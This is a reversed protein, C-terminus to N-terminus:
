LIPSCRHWLVLYRHCSEVQVLARPLQAAIWISGSGTAAAMPMFGTSDGATVSPLDSPPVLPDGTAPDIQVIRGSRGDSAGMTAWVSTSTGTVASGNWSHSSNDMWDIALSRSTVNGEAPHFRALWIRHGGGDPHDPSGIFNQGLMWLSGAAFTARWPCQKHFTTGNAGPDGNADLGVVVTTWGDSRCGVVWAGAGTPVILSPTWAGDAFPAQSVTSGEFPQRLTFIGSRGAVWVSGDVVALDTPRDAARTDIVVRMTRPDIGVLSGGRGTAWVHGAGVALYEPAVAVDVRGTVRGSVPDFAEVFGRSSEVEVGIWARGYGLVVDSAIGGAYPLVAITRLSGPEVTSATASGSGAPARGVGNRFADAVFGIAAAAVALAAAAVLLRKAVTKRHVRALRRVPGTSGVGNARLRREIEPWLDPAPTRNLDELAPSTM